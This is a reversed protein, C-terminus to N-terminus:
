GDAGVYCWGVSDMIWENTAMSGDARLYCWGISDQKWTNKVKNGNEFFYWAGNEYVWGAPGPLEDPPLTFTASADQANATGAFISVMSVCSLVIAIALVTSLFKKM